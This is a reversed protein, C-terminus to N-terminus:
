RTNDRWVCNQYSSDPLHGTADCWQEVRCDLQEDRQHREENGEHKPGQESLTVQEDRQRHDENGKKELEQESLTVLEDRQRHDENEEHKLEQESLTM